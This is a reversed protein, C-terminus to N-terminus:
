NDKQKPKDEHWRVSGGTFKTKPQSINTRGIRTIIGKSQTVAFLVTQTKM